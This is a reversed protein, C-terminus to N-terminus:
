VHLGVPILEIASVMTAKMMATDRRTVVVLEPV